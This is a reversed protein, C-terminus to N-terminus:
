KSNDIVFEASVIFDKSTEEESEYRINKIIRYTGKKLKGYGDEWKLKMEKSEGPLLYFLPLNFNLNNDIKEWKGDKKVEIEYPNGYMIKKNTNNILIVTAGSSTLTGKKIAMTVGSKNKSKTCATLGLILFISIFIILLVRKM